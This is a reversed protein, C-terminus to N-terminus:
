RAAPPLAAQRYDALRRGRVGGPVPAPAVSATQLAAAPRERKVPGLQLRAVLSGPLPAYAYLTGGEGVERWAAEVKERYRQNHEPTASHYYGVAAQWSGEREKLSRLFRVAYAVNHAPDFAQELSDFADPHARLNIQMCGVDISRMGGAQLARVTEVAAAKSEAYQGAGEANITWPWAVTRRSVPGVRGSETLSIARLLGAPIGNAAEAAAVEAACPDEEARAPQAVWILLTILTLILARITM